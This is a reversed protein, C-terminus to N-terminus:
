HLISIMSFIGNHWCQPFKHCLKFYFEPFKLFVSNDACNIMLDHRIYNPCCTYHYDWTNESLYFSARNLFSPVTETSSLLIGLIWVLCLLIAFDAVLPWFSSICLHFFWTCTKQIEEPARRFAMDELFLNFFSSAFM